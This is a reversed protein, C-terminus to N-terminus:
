QLPQQQQQASMGGLKGTSRHPLCLAPYQPVAPLLTPVDPLDSISLPHEDGLCWNWQTLIEFTDSIHLVSGETAM